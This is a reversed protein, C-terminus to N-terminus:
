VKKTGPGIMETQYEYILWPAERYYLVRAYATPPPRPEMFPTDIGQLYVVCYTERLDIKNVKHSRLALKNTKVYKFSLGFKDIFWNEQGKLAKILDTVNECVHKIPKLDIASHLRREGLTPKRIRLDDIPLGNVFVVKDIVIPEGYIKYIPFQINKLNLLYRTKEM